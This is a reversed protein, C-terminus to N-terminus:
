KKLSYTSDNISIKKDLRNIMRYLDTIKNYSLIDKLSIEFLSMLEERTREDFYANYRRLVYVIDEKSFSDLTKYKKDIYKIIDVTIDETADIKWSLYDEYEKRTKDNMTDKYEDYYMKVSIFSVKKDKKYGDRYKKIALLYDTIIEYINDSKFLLELEEENKKEKDIGYYYEFIDKARYLLDYYSISDFPITKYYDMDLRDIKETHKLNELVININNLITSVKDESIGYKNSIVELSNNNKYYDEIINNEFSGFYILYDKFDDYITKGKIERNFYKKIKLISDLYMERFIKKDYHYEIALEELTMWKYNDIGYVHKIIEKERESIPLHNDKLLNVVNNFESIEFNYKALMEDRSLGEIFYNKVIEKEKMTLITECSHLSYERYIDKNSCKLYSICYSMYAKEFKDKIYKLTLENIGYKKKIEEDDLNNSYKEVIVEIDIEKFEPDKIVEFLKSDEIRLGSFLYYRDM